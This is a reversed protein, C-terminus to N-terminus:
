LCLEALAAQVDRLVCLMTDVRSEEEAVSHGCVTGSMRLELSKRPERRKIYVDCRGKCHSLICKLYWLHTIM